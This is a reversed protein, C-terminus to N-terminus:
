GPSIVTTSSIASPIKFVICILHGHQYYLIQKCLTIYDYFSFVFNSGLCLSSSVGLLDESGPKLNSNENYKSAVCIFVYAVIMTVGVTECPLLQSLSPCSHSM